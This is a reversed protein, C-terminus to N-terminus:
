MIRWAATRSFMDDTLERIGSIMRLVGCIRQRSTYHLKGILAPGPSLGLVM